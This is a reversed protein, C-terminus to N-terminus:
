IEQSHTLLDWLVRHRSYNAQANLADIQVTRLTRRADLLNILSTAGRQYAYEASAAAARANDILDGQYTHLVDAATNLTALEAELSRRAQLRATSLALEAATQDALSRRIEGEYHNGIQIPVSIGLGMTNPKSSIPDHEYQLSVTVDNARQARALEVAKSSSQLRWRAAIVDPQQEILNDLQDTSPVDANGPWDLSANILASSENHGLLRAVIGRAQALNGQAQRADSRSRAAEVRIRSLDAAAIDGSRFRLESAALTRQYLASAEQSLRLNEQAVVLDHWANDAAVGLDRWLTQRDAGAVGVNATAVDQRLGHKNGREFPQSWAAVTDIDKRWYSSNGGNNHTNISSTSLSLVPNPREGATILDARAAEVGASAMQLEPNSSRMMAMTQPLTLASLDEGYALPIALALLLPLYRYNFMLTTANMDHMQRKHLSEQM